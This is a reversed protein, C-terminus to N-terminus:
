GQAGGDEASGNSALALLGGVFWFVVASIAAKYGPGWECEDAFTERVAPAESDLYQMVPNDLCLSSSQMMLTMGQLFGVFMFTGGLSKMAAAGGGRAAGCSGLVALAGFITALISFAMVSKSKADLDYPVGLDKDLYKYSRCTEIVWLQDGSLLYNNTRYSWAGFSVDADTSGVPIKMTECHLIGFAGCLLATTGLIPAM